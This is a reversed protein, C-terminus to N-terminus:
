AQKISKNLRKVSTPPLLFNIQPSALAITILRERRIQAIRLKLENYSALNLAGSLTKILTSKASQTEGLLICGTKAQMVEYM